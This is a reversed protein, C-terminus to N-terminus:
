RNTTVGRSSGSLKENAVRDPQPNRAVHKAHQAHTGATAPEAASHRVRHYDYHCCDVRANRPHCGRFATHPTETALRRDSKSGDRPSVGARVAPNCTATRASDVLHHIRFFGVLRNAARWLLKTTRAPGRSANREYCLISPKEPALTWRKQLWSHVRISVLKKRPTRCHREKRRTAATGTALAGHLRCAQRPM